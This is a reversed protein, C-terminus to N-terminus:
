VCRLQVFVSSYCGFLGFIFCISWKPTMQPWKLYRVSEMLNTTTLVLGGVVLRMGYVKYAERKEEKLLVAWVWVPSTTPLATGFPEGQIYQTPFHLASHGVEWVWGWLYPILHWEDFLFCFHWRESDHSKSKQRKDQDKEREVSLVSGSASELM